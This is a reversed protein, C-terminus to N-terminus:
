YDAFGRLGGLNQFLQGTGQERCDTRQGTGEYASGSLEVPSLDIIRLGM